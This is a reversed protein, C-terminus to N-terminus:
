KVGEMCDTTFTFIVEIRKGPYVYIKSIFAEIMDKTLEKGSKLKLLAKIATLYKESLKNLAKIEKEQGEQQKKLDELKNEQQMKFAVYKKQPIKGARYDMYISSEEEHSRRIKGETERLGSEARKVAEAIREKGYEMYRKPKNLFVAFEMRILPLLIGVLENKSIRNSDPCVTVKTKGGNLCFYGDLRATEGDAYHKVYSSRTMKRGCVGCYLVSDFINEEIPYGKAPHHYSATRKQIKERIEVSKQYLEGDVLPEHAEKTIVWDDEPKHIRNKEDRATISTRGQVLTGTYTESKLIREVASKDWGKYAGADPAHYVEKTKKYLAPPNIQRHNLEDAVATYSETEVFKEYIFRVIGETNEDPILVRRKGDWEAMYGYPPPGGVYSGEERRQKLHLKAKKSFDKAYMDNVLNKIESAMQKNENGEKGTDFGDAVAIFRVGLFPFIKEIYNGAELYNRGFRSLDKVIVCNIEGLRIDQLLRLFGAREFNSGTKGLDTYCEIVDIVEGAKNRNFEEVFKRAIEIQVEVSENKKEDQDSSLRAYIGAKYRKKEMNLETQIDATKRLSNGRKSVRGM